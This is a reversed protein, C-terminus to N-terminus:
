QRVPRWHVILLRPAFNVVFLDCHLSWLVSKCQQLTPCSDCVSIWDKEQWHLTSLLGHRPHTQWYCRKCINCLWEGRTFHRVGGNELTDSQLQTFIDGWRSAVSCCLHDSELAPLQHFPPICTKFVDCLSWLFLWCETLICDTMFFIYLFYIRQRQPKCHCHHPPLPFPTLLTLLLHSGWQWECECRWEQLWKWQLIPLMVTWILHCLVLALYGQVGKISGPCYQCWIIDSRWSIARQIGSQLHQHLPTHSYPKLGLSDLILHKTPPSYVSYVLDTLHSMDAHDSNTLDSLSPTMCFFWIYINLSWLLKLERM